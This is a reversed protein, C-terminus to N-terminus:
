TNMLARLWSRASMFVYSSAVPTGVSDNEVTVDSIGLPNWWHRALWADRYDGVADAWISAALVTDGSSYHWRTGPPEAQPREAVMAAMDASRYLMDTVQDGPQYEESFDLGSQMRLLHQLRLRRDVTPWLQDVQQQPDLVKLAQARAVWSALLSKSMSWGPM